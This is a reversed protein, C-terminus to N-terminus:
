KFHGKLEPFARLIRFYAFPITALIVILICVGILLNSKKSRTDMKGHLCLGYLFDTAVWIPQFVMRTSDMTRSTLSPLQSQRRVMGLNHFSYGLIPNITRLGVVIPMMLLIVIYMPLIDFYNPVYTLTM